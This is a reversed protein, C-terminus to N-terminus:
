SVGFGRVRNACADCWTRSKYAAIGGSVILLIQKDRLSM